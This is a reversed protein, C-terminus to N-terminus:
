RWGGVISLLLSQGPTASSAPGRPWPPRPSRPAAGRPRRRRPWGRRAWHCWRGRRRSAVRRAVGPAGRRQPEGGFPVEVLDDLYRRPRSPRCPTASARPRARAPWRRCSASRWPRARDRRARTRVPPPHRRRAASSCHSTPSTAILRASCCRTWWRAPAGVFGRPTTTPPAPRSPPRWGRSRRTAPRRVRRAPARRPGRLRARGALAGSPRTWCHLDAAQKAITLSVCERRGSGIRLGPAAIKSLTSIAALTGTRSGLFAQARQLAARRSRAPWRPWPSADSGVPGAPPVHFTPPDQPPDLRARRDAGRAHPHGDHRSRRM